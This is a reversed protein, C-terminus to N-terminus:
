GQRIKECLEDMQEPTLQGLWHLCDTLAAKFESPDNCVLVGTRDVAVGGPLMDIGVPGETPIISLIVETRNACARASEPILNALVALSLGALFDRRSTGSQECNLM